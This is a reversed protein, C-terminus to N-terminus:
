DPEDTVPRNRIESREAQEAKVADLKNRLTTSVPAKSIGEHALAKELSRRYESLEGDTLASIAHAPKEVALAAETM